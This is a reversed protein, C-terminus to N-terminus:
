ELLHSCSSLCRLDILVANRKNLLDLAADPSLYGSFGGRRSRWILFAPVAVAAGAATRLNSDAAIQLMCLM